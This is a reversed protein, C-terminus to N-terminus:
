VKCNYLYGPFFEDIYRLSKAPKPKKNKKKEKKENEKVFAQKDQRNRLSYATSQATM